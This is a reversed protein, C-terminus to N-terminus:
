FNILSIKKFSVKCGNCVACVQKYMIVYVIIIYNIVLSVNGGMETLLHAAVQRLYHFLYIQSTERFFSCNLARGGQILEFIGSQAFGHLM